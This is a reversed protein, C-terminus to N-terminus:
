EGASKQRMAWDSAKQACSQNLEALYKEDEKLTKQTSTLEEQAGHFEEETRARGSTAEGLQKKMVKTEGELGQKVMQFAHVANSEEQRTSSLSEEAKEQMDAITDLIGGSKSEYASTSAQPQLDLDEDSEGSQAQILSQLVAKQHQNVWSAEVIKQLGSAMLGLDKAARGSQLFGLNKKLVSSARSLSDVTDVLEKEAAAFDKHEGARISNAKKLDGESASIKGTLEDITSTLTQISAEANEITAQLDKITRKSSTISDEKENATEDCWTTYEEMLKEESALDAEVKSKLDDLLEIVKQVPSVATALVLPALLLLMM